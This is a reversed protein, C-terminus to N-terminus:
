WGQILGGGRPIPKGSGDYANPNFSGSFTNKQTDYLDVVKDGVIKRAGTSDMFGSAVLRPPDIERGQYVIEAYSCVFCTFRFVHGNEVEEEENETRGCAPCSINDRYMKPM